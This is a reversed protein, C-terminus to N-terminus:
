RIILKNLQEGNENSIKIVYMGKELSAVNIASSTSLETFFVEDGFINFIRVQTTSTIGTINLIESTPNPYIGTSSGTLYEVGTAGLKFGSIAAFSGAEFNGSTNELMSSYFAELDCTEGTSTRFLKYSVSEGNVFGEKEALTNDDGFLTMAQNEKEGSLALYGYIHGDKGFAGIVDGEILNGTVESMFLSVQTNPTMNLNGWVTEINNDASTGKTNSKASCEPFTVTMENALKIIYAKGPEFSQLTYIQMAPWFVKMGILEQIIVVNNINNSFMDMVNAPCQCLVPLYSWGAPITIEGSVFEAGAIQFDLNDSVKLVYGSFNDWDGITNLGEAPWYLSSLNRIITLENVIPAFMNEVAPDFPLIQCSISNWGQSFLFNQLYAAKLSTLRSLGFDAFYGENPMDPDYTAVATHDTPIGCQKLRWRFPEGLSFGDKGTTTPDNGYANIALGSTGNWQVAGGCAEEGNDDLYFVGIWDFAALPTGFIEPASGVPISITHVKGTQVYPWPQLCELLNITVTWNKTNGAEAIVKYIVTSNFNNPTVGSEQIVGKVTASAGDSLTFTAILSSLNVNELLDLTITFAAHDITGIVDALLSPNEAVNFAYSLIRAEPSPPCNATASQEIYYETGSGAFLQNGEGDILEWSHEENYLGDGYYIFTILDGEEAYVPLEYPDGVPKTIYEYFPEWNVFVQAWDGWWDDGWQAYLILTHRCGNYVTVTRSVVNNELNGDGGPDSVTLVLDYSGAETPTWSPFQIVTEQISGLNTVSITESYDDGIQLTVEFSAANLGYNGVKVNVPTTEGVGFKHKVVEPTEVYFAVADVNEITLPDKIGFGSNYAELNNTLSTFLGTALDIYGYRDDSYLGHMYAYLRNLTPEYSLGQWGDANFGINGVVTQAGTAPNIKVLTENGINITYLFGDPLFVLGYSNDYIISTSSIVTLEMTSLDITCFSKVLTTLSVVGIYMTSTTEDYALGTPLVPEGNLEIPGLPVETGDDTKIFLVNNVADAVYYVGNAFTAVTEKPWDSTPDYTNNAIFTQKGTIVDVSVFEHTALNNAYSSKTYVFPGLLEGNSEGTGGDGIANKAIVRYTYYGFQPITNDVFPQVGSWNTALVTSDPMRIITYGTVGTFYGGHLGATPEDWTIEADTDDNVPTLLVNAPAAPVDEGVYVMVNTKPSNGHSNTAFIEYEYVGPQSHTDTYNEPTGIGPNLNQYLLGGNRYISVSSLSTLPNGSQTLSPNTWALGASLAGMAAPTVTFDDIAEPAQPDGVYGFITFPAGQQYVVTGLWSWSTGGNFTYYGNGTVPQGIVTVPVIAASGYNPSGEFTYAIWYTGPDLTLGPTQCNVQMIPRNTQSLSTGRYCNTWSTSILRNTLVDGWIITGGANPAADWIQIFAQKIPSPSTPSTSQYAFLRISEITWDEDGSVVFDDTIRWSPWNAQYGNQQYPSYVMSFDAGGAGGGPHTVFPGNDFLQYASRSGDPTQNPNLAEPRAATATNLTKSTIGYQRMLRIMEANDPLKAEQSLLVMSMMTCILLVFAFQSFRKM